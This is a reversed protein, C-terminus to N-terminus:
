PNSRARANRLIDLASDLNKIADSNAREVKEASGQGALDGGSGGRIRRRLTDGIWVAAVVALGAFAVGFAARLIAWLRTWSFAM